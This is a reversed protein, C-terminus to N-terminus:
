RPLLTEAVVEVLEAVLRIGAWVVVAAILGGVLCAVSGALAFGLLSLLAVVIGVILALLRGRQSMFVVAPYTKVM